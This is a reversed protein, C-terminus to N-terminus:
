STQEALEKFRAGLEEARKESEQIELKKCEYGLLKKYTEVAKDTFVVTGNEKIKEIGDGERGCDENVEVADELSIGEPLIIEPDEHYNLRVPYGGPYGAPGQAHVRENTDFYIALINRSFSAAINEQPPIEEFSGMLAKCFPKVRKRIENLPFKDTIDRDYAYIKILFPADLFSSALGHHGFMYVSLNRMAVGTEESVFKKIPPIFLDMNGGGCVPALGIKDLVPNVVDSYACNVVRTDVSAQDVAQMLKHALTLHFPLQPGLGADNIQRVMEDPLLHYFWWSQMVAANCILPPKERELIRTTEEVNLLDIKQFEIDPYIDKHIATYLSNKALLDADSSYDAAIIKGVGPTQALDQLIHYGLEGIGVIM